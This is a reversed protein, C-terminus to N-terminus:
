KCIKEGTRETLIINESEYGAAELEKYLELMEDKTLNIKIVRKLIPHVADINFLKKNRTM